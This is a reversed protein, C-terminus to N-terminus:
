SQTLTARCVNVVAKLRPVRSKLSQADALTAGFDKRGLRNILDNFSFQEDYLNYSFVFGGVSLNRNLRTSGTFEDTKNATQVVTRLLEFARAYDFRSYVTAAGVLTAIKEQNTDLKTAIQEIESLIEAARALDKGQGEIMSNAVLNLIYSRRLLDKDRRAWEQASELKGGEIESEAISFSIFQKAADGSKLSMKDVANLAVTYKKDRVATTAAMYYTRDKLDPDSLKDARSLLSEASLGAATNQGANRQSNNWRDTTEQVSTRKDQELASVLLTQQASLPEAVEPLYKLAHPQILGILYLDGATGATLRAVGATYRDPQSLIQTVAQLYQRALVPDPQRDEVIDQYDAIRRITLGEPVVYPVRLPSFVYSYLLLLENINEGQRQTIHRLTLTLFSNAKPADKKRLVELFILTRPIIASAATKEAVSLALAPDSEVLETALRLHLDAVEPTLNLSSSSNPSSAAASANQQKSEAYRAVYSRALNGDFNAAIKIVDRILDDAKKRQSPEESLSAEVVKSVDAFLDDLLKQCRERNKAALIKVVDRSIATRENLDEVSRLEDAVQNLYALATQQVPLVKNAKRKQAYLPANGTACILLSLLVVRCLRDTQLYTRPL